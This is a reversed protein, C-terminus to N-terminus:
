KGYLNASVYIVWITGIGLGPETVAAMTTGTVAAMYTHQCTCSFVDYLIM